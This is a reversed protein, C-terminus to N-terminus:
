SSTGVGTGDLRGEPIGLLSGDAAGEPIGLSFGEAAGEPIGLSSGLTSGEFGGEGDTVTMSSPSVSIRLKAHGGGQLLVVSSSVQLSMKQSM